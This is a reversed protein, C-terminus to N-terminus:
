LDTRVCRGRVVEEYEQRTHGSLAVVGDSYYTPLFRKGEVRYSAIGGPISNVLHDMELQAEKSDTINHFVCHLLPCGEDEGVWKMQVRVWVIHGDRHQKRFEFKAIGHSQIVEAAKSLVIAADELM